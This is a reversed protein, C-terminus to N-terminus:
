IITIKLEKGKGAYNCIALADARDPSKMGRKKM